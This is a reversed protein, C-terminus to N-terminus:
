VRVYFAIQVAVHVCHVGVWYLSTHISWGEVHWEVAAGVVAVAVIPWM